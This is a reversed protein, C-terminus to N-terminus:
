ADRRRLVVGATAVLGVVWAAYVAIGAGTSLLDADQTMSVASSAFSAGANSPLYKAVGSLSDPLLNALGPVLFLSAFLTGIAGASSRLLFGLSMGMVTVGGAYLGVGLLTQWVAADTLSPIPAAGGYVARGGLFALVAAVGAVVVSGLGVVMAKAGLVALRNPVVSFTVRALGSAYESSAVLVGIIGLVIQALNFGSLSISLPDTLGEMPGPGSEGSGAFSSFALGFGIVTAAAGAFGYLSSRVTVLKIWESRLLRAPTIRLSTTDVRDLRGTPATPTLTTM